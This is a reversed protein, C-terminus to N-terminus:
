KAGYIERGLGHRAGDVFQDIFRDVEEGLPIQVVVAQVVEITVLIIIHMINIWWFSLKFWIGKHIFWLDDDQDKLFGWDKRQQCSSSSTHLQGRCHFTFSWNEVHKNNMVYKSCFCFVQIWIKKFYLFIFSFFSPYSVSHVYKKRFESFSLSNPDSVSHVSEKRFEINTMQILCAFSPWILEFLSDFGVMHAKECSWQNSSQLHINM